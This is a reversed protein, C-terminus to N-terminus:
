TRADITALRETLYICADCFLYKCYGFDYYWQLAMERRLENTPIYKDIAERLFGDLRGSDVIQRWWGQTLPEDALPIWM